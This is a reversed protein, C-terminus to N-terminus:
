PGLKRRTFCAIKDISDFNERIIENDETLINFEEEVFMVLELINTSDLIENEIFSADDSFPYGNESFLINDAIYSRLMEEIPKM